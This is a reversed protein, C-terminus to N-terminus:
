NRETNEFIQIHAKVMSEITYDHAKKLNDENMLRILESDSLIRNLSDSLAKSDEVPVIFGNERDKVLEVGALCRNTTVIPLGFAMAENIVLGWIDERTPLVFVDAAMYYEKLEDPKKFGVFHVNELHHKEKLQVYEETPRGGVFYIGIGSTINNAANLLIDFGKRPIFQGVALIVQQETIRLKERLAKKDEVSVPASLIEKDSVSSFPYRVIKKRPAGYSAYYDDHGMGTSLYLDAGCIAKKKLAKKLFSDPSAFGGDSELIYPIHRRKLYGTLKMGTPSLFDSCIVADWKQVKVYNVVEPCYAMDASISKGNLFVGNFTDFTYEKWSADREDSTRKEFLVTLECSKGLENFFKVRYPSPVNTVFLVKM